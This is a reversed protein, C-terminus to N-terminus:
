RLLVSSRNQFSTAFVHDCVVVVSSPYFGLHDNMTNKIQIASPLQNCRQTLDAYCDTGTREVSSSLASQSSRYERTGFRLSTCTKQHIVTCVHKTQFMVPICNSVVTGSLFMFLMCISVWCVPTNLRGTQGARKKEHGM